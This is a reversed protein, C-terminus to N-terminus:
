LSNNSDVIRWSHPNPGRPNPCHGKIAKDRLDLSSCSACMIENDKIVLFMIKACTVLNCHRM